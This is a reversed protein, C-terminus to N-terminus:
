PSGERFEPRKLPRMRIETVEATRPLSLASLIMAAVNDAQMLNEPRYTKNEMAHVRAQLPTATRGLYVSLVRIGDQNVEERLSDAIAKLAHKTAAYQSVNERAVLGATSNIFVIQGRQSPLMPLLAQTLAYPALVNTRYQRELDAIPARALLDRAYVGASHVIIDIHEFNARLRTVLRNLDEDRTLDAQYPLLEPPIAQSSSAIAELEELRRAVLCVTAGHEALSLAIAKGIGSSAGTVVAVQGRFVTM